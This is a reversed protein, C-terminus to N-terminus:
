SVSEYGMPTATVDSKLVGGWQFLSFTKRSSTGHLQDLSSVASFSQWRLGASCVKVLLLLSASCSFATSWMATLRPISAIVAVLMTV